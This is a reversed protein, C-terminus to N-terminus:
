RDEGSAVYMIGLQALAIGLFLGICDKAFYSYTIAFSSLMVCVIVTAIYRM